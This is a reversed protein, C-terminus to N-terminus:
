GINSRWRRIDEPPNQERRLRNEEGMRPQGAAVRQQNRRNGPNLHGGTGMPVLKPLPKLGAAIRDIEMAVEVDHKLLMRKKGAIEKLRAEVRREMEMRIELETRSLWYQCERHLREIRAWDRPLDM